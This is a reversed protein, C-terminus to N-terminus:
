RPSSACPLPSFASPWLGSILTQEIAELVSEMNPNQAVSHSLGREQLRQATTTGIAICHTNHGIADPLADVASPSSLVTIQPASVNEPWPVAETRYVNLAKVTYSAKALAEALTPLALEGKPWAVPGAEHLAIFAAALGTANNEPAMLAVTGGKAQISAATAQGVAGIKRPHLVTGLEIVAEVAAVSTFLWWPCDELPQLRVGEIARTQILPQRIVEFGRELLLADLGVLRGESQTLAVKM